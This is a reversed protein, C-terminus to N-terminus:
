AAGFAPPYTLTGRGDGLIEPTLELAMLHPGSMSPSPWPCRFLAARDASFGFRTYFAPDGLVFVAEAGGARLRSLGFRILMAAIGLRRHDPLVSVPALFRGRIPDDRDDRGDLRIDLPGFLIQGLLRGAGDEAVLSLSVDGAATLKRVLDAEDPRGFATTILQALADADAPETRRMRFGEPLGGATM